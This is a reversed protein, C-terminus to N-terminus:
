GHVRLAKERRSKWEVVAETRVDDLSGKALVSVVMADVAQM